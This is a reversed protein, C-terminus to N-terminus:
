RNKLFELMGRLLRFCGDIPVIGIRFIDPKNLLLHLVGEIVVLSVGIIEGKVLDINKSDVRFAGRYEEAANHPNVGNIFVKYFDQRDGETVKSVDFGLAAMLAEVLEKKAQPDTLMGIKAKEYDEKLKKIRAELEAKNKQLTENREILEDLKTQLEEIKKREEEPIVTGPGPNALKNLAKELEDLNESFDCSYVLFGAEMISPVTTDPIEPVYQDLEEEFEEAEIECIKLNKEIPGFMRELENIETQSQIPPAAFLFFAAFFLFILQFKLSCKM